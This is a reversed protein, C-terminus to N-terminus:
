NKRVLQCQSCAIYWPNLAIIYDCCGQKWAIDENSCFAAAQQSNMHRLSSFLFPTWQQPSSIALNTQCQISSICHYIFLISSPHRPHHCISKLSQQCSFVDTPVWFSHWSVHQALTQPFNVLLCHSSILRYLWGRRNGKPKRSHHLRSYM